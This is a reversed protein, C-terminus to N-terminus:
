FPRPLDFANWYAAPSRDTRATAPITVKLLARHGALPLTGYISLHVRTIDHPSDYGFTDLEIPAYTQPNVYYNSRPGSQPHVSSIELAPQGGSITTRTVRAHGSNLLGHLQAAFDTSAPDPQQVQVRKLQGLTPLVLPQITQIQTRPNWGVTWQVADKGTRLAAAVSASLTQTMVRGHPLRVRLRYSGSGAPTLTYRPTGSPIKPAPYITHYTANYIQRDGTEELVPGGPVQLVIREAYPEGQQLWAEETLKAVTTARGRRALPSLTETAKVHLITQSSAAPALVAAARALTQRTLASEGSSSGTLLWVAVSAMALLAATALAGRVAGDRQPRPRTRRALDRAAGARLAAGLRDLDPDLTPRTM